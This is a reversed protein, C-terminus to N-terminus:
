SGGTSAADVANSTSTANVAPSMGAIRAERTLGIVASRFSQRPPWRPSSTSLAQGHLMMVVHGPRCRDACTVQFCPEAAVEAADAVAARQHDRIAADRDGLQAGQCGCGVGDEFAQLRQADHGAQFVPRELRKAGDLM